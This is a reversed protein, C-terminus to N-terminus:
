VLLKNQQFYTFYDDQVGTERGFPVDNHRWSMPVIEAERAILRTFVGTVPPNWEVIRIIRGNTHENNNARVLQQLSLPITPSKLYWTAWM